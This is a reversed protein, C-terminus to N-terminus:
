YRAQRPDGERRRRQHGGAIHRSIWLVVAFIPLRRVIQALERDIHDWM